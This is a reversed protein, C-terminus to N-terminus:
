MLGQRLTVEVGQEQDQAHIQPRQQLPRAKGDFSGEELKQCHISERGKAQGGYEVDQFM